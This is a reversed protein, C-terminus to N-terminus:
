ASAKGKIFCLHLLSATWIIFIATLMNSLQMMAEPPVRSLVTEVDPMVGSSLMEDAIQTSMPFLAGLVFYMAISAAAIFGIGTYYRNLYLQGTGPYVLASLMLAKTKTKM